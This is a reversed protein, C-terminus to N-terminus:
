AARFRVSKQTAQGLTFTACSANSSLLTQRSATSDASIKLIQEVSLFIDHYKRRSLGSLVAHTGIIKRSIKATLLSKAPHRPLSDPSSALSHQKGAGNPDWSRLFKEPASILRFIEFRMSVPVIRKSLNKVSILSM